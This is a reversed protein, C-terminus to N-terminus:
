GYIVEGFCAVQVIADAAHGDIYGYDDEKIASMIDAKIGPSVTVENGAIMEIADEIDTKRVTYLEVGDECTFSLAPGPEESDYPEAYEIDDAWYGICMAATDAIDAFDTDTLDFSIEITATM